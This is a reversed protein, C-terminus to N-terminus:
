HSVHLSEDLRQMGPTDRSTWGSPHRVNSEALVLAAAQALVDPTETM